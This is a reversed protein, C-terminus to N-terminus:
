SKKVGVALLARALGVPDGQRCGLATAATIAAEAIRADGSCEVLLAECTVLNFISSRALRRAEARHPHLDREDNM